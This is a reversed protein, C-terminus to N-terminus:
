PKRGLGGYNVSMEPEKLYLDNSSEPRWIPVYVLGPDVLEFTEFFERIEEYSRLKVPTPTNAYVNQIRQAVEPPAGEHTGHTIALYSGPAVTDRLVRVAGYAAEDDPVFLLVSIILVALPREFDLLRRVEPHNLILEPQRLDAEIISVNPNEALITEGHRVAVSDVDAYVVRSEPNAKQAVEHVNGVTPIGSGIDLFQDIGQQTLFHVVRRMFARNAQMVLPTESNIDLIKQAALRDIEFNHYGGLFYDYMRAPSPRDTPLRDPM